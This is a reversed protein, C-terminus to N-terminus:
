TAQSSLDEMMPGLLTSVMRSFHEAKILSICCVDGEKEWFVVALRDGPTIRARERIEKPLVMQGRADISVVAEVTCCCGVPTTEAPSQDQERAREDAM